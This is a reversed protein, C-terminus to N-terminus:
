KENEVVIANKALQYFRALYVDRVDDAVSDYSVIVHGDTTMYAVVNKAHWLSKQVIYQRGDEDQLITKIEAM